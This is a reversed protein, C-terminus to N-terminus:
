ATREEIYQRVIYRLFDQMKMEQKGDWKITLNAAIRELAEMQDYSLYLYYNHGVKNGQFKQKVVQTLKVDCEGM